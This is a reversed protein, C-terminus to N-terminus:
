GKNRFEMLQVWGRVTVFELGLPWRVACAFLGWGIAFGPWDWHPGWMGASMVLWPLMLIVSLWAGQSALYIPGFLLTMVEPQGFEKVQRSDQRKAFKM